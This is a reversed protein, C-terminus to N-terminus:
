HLTFTRSEDVTSGVTPKFRLQASVVLKRDRKLLRRGAGTLKLSFSTQGAQGIVSWGTAIKVRHRHRRRGTLRYWTIKLSGGELAYTQFSYGHSRRVAKLRGRPGSPTLLGRLWSSLESASPLVVVSSSTAPIGNGLANSPTVTFTYSDGPTLGTLTTTLATGSSMVSQGGRAGSTLDSAVVRYGVVPLGGTDSPVKWAVTAQDGGATASAAAPAGPSSLLLSGKGSGIDYSLVAACYGSSACSAGGRGDAIDKAGAPLQVSTSTWSGNSLSLVDAGIQGSAPGYLGAGVCSGALYCSLGYLVVGTGPASGAPPSIEAAPAWSGGAQAVLLGHWLNGSDSYGGGLICNGASACSSLGLGGLDAYADPLHSYDPELASWAGGNDTLLFARAVGHSTVYRGGAACVGVATCSVTAVVTQPNAAPPERLGSLGVSATSWTAGSESLLLPEFQNGTTSYQGVATCTQASPCAVAVLQANNFSGGIAADGPLPLAAAHGWGGNTEVVAMPQETYPSGYLFEGVATCNGPSACAIGSLTPDPDSSNAGSPASVASAPGWNGNSESVVFTGVQYAPLEYTGIASCNGASPCSLAQLFLGSHNSLMGPIHSVDLEVPRWVGGSEDLLLGQTTGATDAYTGIASCSGASPCAIGTLMANSNGAAGAPLPPADAQAVGPAACAAIVAALLIKRM